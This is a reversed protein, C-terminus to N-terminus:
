AGPAADLAALCLGCPTEPKCWDEHRGYMELATTLAAIRAVADNTVGVVGAWRDDLQRQYQEVKMQLHTRESEVEALRTFLHRAVGATMGYVFQHDALRGVLVRFREVERPEV